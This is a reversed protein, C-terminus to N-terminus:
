FFICDCPSEDQIAQLLAERSLMSPDLTLELGALEACMQAGRALEECSWQKSVLSAANDAM